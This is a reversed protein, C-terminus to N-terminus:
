TAAPSRGSRSLRASSTSGMERYAALCATLEPVADAARGAGVWGAAIARRCSLVRPAEGIEEAIEQCEAFAALAGARDGRGAHIAGLTRLSRALASRDEAARLLPVAEEAAVAARDLEGTLALSWSLSQLARAVAMPAAAERAVALAGTDMRVSEAPRGLRNLAASRTAAVTDAGSLAAARDTLALAEEPVGLGTLCDALNTLVWALTSRDTLRDVCWRYKAVADAYHGRVHLVRADVAEAWVEVRGDGAARAGEALAAVCLRLESYCGQPWLYRALREFLRAAALYRDGRAMLGIGVVLSRREITFWSVPDATYRALTEEPLPLAPLPEAADLAPFVRPMGHALLDALALVADLLRAAVRDCEPVGDEAVLLEHAFTLVLDHVQYRPEGCVDSGAAQLLSSEVLEAVADEVAHEGMDGRPLVAFVWAPVNNVGMAGFLRF